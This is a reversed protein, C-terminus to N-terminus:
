GVLLGEGDRLLDRNAFGRCNSGCVGCCENNDVKDCCYPLALGPQPLVVAALVAVGLV